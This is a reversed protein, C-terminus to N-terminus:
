LVRFTAWSIGFKWGGEGWWTFSIYLKAQLEDVVYYPIESAYYKVAILQVMQMGDPADLTWNTWTSPPQNPQRDRHDGLIEFYTWNHFGKIPKAQLNDFVTLSDVSSIFAFLMVLAFM